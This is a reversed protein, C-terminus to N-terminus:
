NRLPKGTKLMASIRELTKENHLLSLFAEQELHLIYDETVWQPASLEGGCLVRAIQRAIVGDYETAYSAWLMQQLGVELAALTPRGAAYVNKGRTPPRYHEALNLVERKAVALVHDPNMVIKDEETLFGLKRAELASGSVKAQAITGFAKEAFLLPPADPSIAIPRAIIRRAMEKTGGGAPLLGVGAEVLGMYTEAAAVVHDSHMAIEAGGGLTQGHPAAVVPKDSCRFNMVLNQLEMLQQRLQDWQGQQAATGVDVLNAGVCFNRADNGIVMGIWKDNELEGLAQKGMAM